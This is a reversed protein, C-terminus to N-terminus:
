QGIANGFIQRAAQVDKQRIEFHAFLVWIKAFTFIKHPIIKL